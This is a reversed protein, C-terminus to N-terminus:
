FADITDVEVLDLFKPSCKFIYEKILKVQARYPTIISIPKDSGTYSQLLFAVLYYVGCAEYENFLSNNSTSQTGLAVDFFLFNNHKGLRGALYPPFQM